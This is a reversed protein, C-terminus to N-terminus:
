VNQLKAQVQAVEYNSTPRKIDKLHRTIRLERIKVNTTTGVWDTFSVTSLNRYDGQLTPFQDLPDELWFHITRFQSTSGANHLTTEDSDLVHLEGVVPDAVWYSDRYIGIIVGDLRGTFDWTTTAAM